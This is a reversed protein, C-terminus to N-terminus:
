LNEIISFLVKNNTYFLYFLLLSSFLVGFLILLTNFNFIYYQNIFYTLFAFTSIFLFLFFLDFVREFIIATFYFIRSEDRINGLYIARILEGLRFPLILNFFSGIFISKIEFKTNNYHEVSICFKRARVLIGIIHFIITLILFKPIINFSQLKTFNIERFFLYLFITSLLIGFLYVIKLNKSM